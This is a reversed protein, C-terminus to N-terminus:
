KMSGLEDGQELWKNVPLKMQKHLNTIEERYFKVLATRCWPDMPEPKTVSGTRLHEVVGHLFPRFVDWYFKRPLVRQLMNKIMSQKGLWVVIRRSLWNDPIASINHKQSVDVEFSSEVGLFSYIDALIDGPNNVFDEYLYIRVQDKNFYSFYRALQSAYMGRELYISEGSGSDLMRLEDEIVSRFNKREEQGERVRFIYASYAREVPNRLICLMKVNPILEKIKGPASKSFLYLTSAEGIASEDTVDDFLREYEQLTKYPFLGKRDEENAFYRPEKDPSMYIQPHQELHRYLATTGAKQAGIVIFNPLTVNIVM